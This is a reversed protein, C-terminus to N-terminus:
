PTPEGVLQRAVRLLKSSLILGATEARSRSIDFRVRNGEVEFAILGGQDLFRRGEGVTLVPAQKLAPLQRASRDLHGAGFYVMHCGKLDGGNELEQVEISRDRVHENLLSLRLQERFSPDAYVCVRFPSSADAFAQSPWEIFKTFNYLFAAKIANEGPQAPQGTLPSSFAAALWLGVAARRWRTLVVM